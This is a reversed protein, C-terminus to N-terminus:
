QLLETPRNQFADRTILCLSCRNLGVKLQINGLGDYPEVVVTIEVSMPFFFDFNSALVNRSSSFQFFLEVSLMKKADFKWIMIITHKYILEFIEVSTFYKLNSRKMTCSSNNNLSQKDPPKVIAHILLKMRM